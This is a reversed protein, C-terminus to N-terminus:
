NPCLQSRLKIGVKALGLGSWFVRAILLQANSKQVSQSLSSLSPLHCMNVFLKSGISRLNCFFTKKIGLENDSINHKITGYLDRDCQTVSHQQSNSPNCSEATSHTTGLKQVFCIAIRLVESRACFIYSM